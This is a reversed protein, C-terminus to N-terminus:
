KYFAFYISPGDMLVIQSNAQTGTSQHRTVQVDRASLQIVNVGPVSCVVDGVNSSATTELVLVLLM